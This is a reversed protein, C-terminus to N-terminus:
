EGEAPKESDQPPICTWGHQQMEQVWKAHRRAAANKSRAAWAVQINPNGRARKMDEM